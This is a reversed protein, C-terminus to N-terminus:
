QETKLRLSNGRKENDELVQTRQPVNHDIGVRCTRRQGQQHKMAQQALPVLHQGAHMQVRRHGAHGRREHGAQARAVYVAVGAMTKLKAESEYPFITLPYLLSLIHKGPPGSHM